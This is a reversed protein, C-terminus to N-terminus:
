WVSTKRATEVQVNQFYEGHRLSARLTMVAPIMEVRDVVAPNSLYSLVDKGLSSMITSDLYDRKFHSFNSVM